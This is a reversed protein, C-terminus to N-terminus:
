RSRLSKRHANRNRDYEAQCEKHFSTGRNDTHMGVEWKKCFRCFRSDPCGSAKMAKTRRHLLLHYEHDECIVLNHGDNNARNSDVHHVEAGQPLYHGLAEEARLIHQPVYGVVARPHGPAHQQVYGDVMRTGGNWRGNGSGKAHHGHLFNRIQSPFKPTKLAGGCGCKCLRITEILM